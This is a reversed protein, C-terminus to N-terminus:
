HFKPVRPNESYNLHAVFQIDVRLWDRAFDVATSMFAFRPEKDEGKALWLRSHCINKEVPKTDLNFIQQKTHDGENIIKIILDELYSM